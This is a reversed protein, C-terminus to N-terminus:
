LFFLDNFYMFYLYYACVCVEEACKDTSAATALSRRFTGGSAIVSLLKRRNESDTEEETEETRQEDQEKSCPHWTSAVSESICINAILSQGVTLLLSIFGLLMLEVCSVFFIYM